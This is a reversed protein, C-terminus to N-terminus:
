QISTVSLDIRCVVPWVTAVDEGRNGLLYNGRIGSVSVCILSIVTLGTTLEALVFNIGFLLMIEVMKNIKCVACTASSIIQLLAIIKIGCGESTICKLSKITFNLNPEFTAAIPRFAVGFFGHLM